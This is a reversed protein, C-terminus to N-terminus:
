ADQKVSVSAAETVTVVWAGDPSAFRARFPIQSGLPDLLIFILGENQEDDTEREEDGLARANESTNDAIEVSLVSREDIEARRFLREREPEGWEGAKLVQFEYGQADISIRLDDGSAIVEDFASQVRAAFREADERVDSRSPPANLLVVTSALALIVIVVLFEILTLGQQHKRAIRAAVM